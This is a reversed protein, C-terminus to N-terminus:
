LDGIGCCGGSGGCLVATADVVDVVDFKDLKKLGGGRMNNSSGICRLGTVVFMDVVDDILSLLGSDGM